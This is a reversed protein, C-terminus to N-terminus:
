RIVRTRLADLFVPDKVADQLTDYTKSNLCPSVQYALKNGFEKKYGYENAIYEKCVVVRISATESSHTGIVSPHKILVVPLDYFANRDGYKLVIAGPLDKELMDKIGWAEENAAAEWAELDSKSSADWLMKARNEAKMPNIDILNFSSNSQHTSNIRNFEATLSNIISQQNETM